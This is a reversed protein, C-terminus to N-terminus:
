ASSGESWRLESPGQHIQDEDISSYQPARVSANWFFFNVESFLSKLLEWIEM